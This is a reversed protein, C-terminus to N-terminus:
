TIDFGGSDKLCDLRDGTPEGALMGRRIWEKHQFRGAPTVNVTFAPRIGDEPPSDLPRPVERGIRGAVDLAEVLEELIEDRDAESHFGM